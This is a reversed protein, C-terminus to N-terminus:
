ALLTYEVAQMLGQAFYDPSYKQIHKLAVQSMAQLDVEGSSIKLMLNTLEQPNQPNFGFGNIGELLLDEFCGCRNSLLVPLGAAMAENVVLGWQEQISAHIFCGAHAYYPLLEDQQLFGPLHVVDKLALEAIRQEIQPRLEGDGCIVLDWACSGAAQRYEAYSLILFLLNKKPVFRNIALFYNKRLPPSLSKIKDPHFADNGVIDYGLFIAKKDMGLKMLYRKHPEGGVLAAKYSRLLISKLTERWWMRNADDEKTESLLVAPKKHWFSWLLAELMGPVGYGCLILVDPQIETLNKAINKFLSLSSQLQAPQNSLVIRKYPPIFDSYKWSYIASVRGLELIFLSIEPFKTAFASYRAVIYPSSVTTLAAIKM